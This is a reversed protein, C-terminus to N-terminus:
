RIGGAAQQRGQQDKDHPDIQYYLQFTVQVPYGVPDPTRTVELRWVTAFQPLQDVAALYRCMSAFSGILRCSVEITAHDDRQLPPGTQCQEIELDLEGALRTIQEVFEGASHETPMRERTREAVATLEALRTRMERHTRAVADGHAALAGAREIRVSRDETDRRLPLYVGRFLGLALAFTVAAGCAHIATPPLAISKFRNLM